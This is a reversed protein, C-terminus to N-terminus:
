RSFIGPLRDGEVQGCTDQNDGYHLELSTIEVQSVIVTSFTATNPFDLAASNTTFDVGKQFVPAFVQSLLSVILLFHM